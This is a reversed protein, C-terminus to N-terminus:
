VLGEAMEKLKDRVAVEVSTSISMAPFDKMSEDLHRRTFIDLNITFLMWNTQCYDDFVGQVDDPNRDYARQVAQQIFRDALGTFGMNLYLDLLDTSEVLEDYKARLEAETVIPADEHEPVGQSVWHNEYDSM